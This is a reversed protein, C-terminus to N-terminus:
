AGATLETSSMLWNIAEEFDKFAAVNFGRNGAYLEMFRAVELTSEPRALIALQSRFSDRHEVMVDVLETIDTFSLNGTTQRADILIDYQGPASNESAIKTLVQKSAELDLEGTPTAKLFDQSKIVRINLNM